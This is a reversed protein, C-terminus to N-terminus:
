GVSAESPPRAAGEAADAAIAADVEADLERDSGSLALWFTVFLSAIPWALIFAWSDLRLPARVRTYTPLAAFSEASRGHGIWVGLRAAVLAGLVGGVTLAVVLAVGADRHRAYSLAAVTLGVIVAAIGFYAEARFFGGCDVENVCPEVYGATATAHPALFGWAVGIVVGLVLCAAVVQLGAGVDARSVNTASRRTSASVDPTPAEVSSM